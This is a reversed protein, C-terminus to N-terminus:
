AVMRVGHHPDRTGIELAAARSTAVIPKEGAVAVEVRASALKSNLCYTMAGNPTDYQLGVMDDTDAWLEGRVSVSPGNGSFTWRRLTMAGRNRLLTRIRTLMHTRGGTRMALLTATPLLVPGVRVRASTGELVLDDTENWVNCHGWAYAFAHGKGWNHGLLGRWGDVRWVRGGEVRIEGTARLDPMPSVLKTSPLPGTYMRRHPFFVFPAGEDSLALDFAVDGVSGHVRSRSVTLGPMEIDITDRSFRASSFDFTAKSGVAPKGREFAIAWSEACPAEGLRRLITAKVWLAREGSPDNVKLFYSEVHGHSSRQEDYRVGDWSSM